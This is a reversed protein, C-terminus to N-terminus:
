RCMYGLEVIHLGGRRDRTSTFLYVVKLIWEDSTRGPIFVVSSLYKASSRNPPSLFLDVSPALPASDSFLGM